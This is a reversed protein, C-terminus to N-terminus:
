GYVRCAAYKSFAGARRNPLQVAMCVCDPLFEDWKVELLTPADGARVLPLQPDLLDVGGLGTRLDDDLTVRVNGAPYVYAKRRYDVLTRPRLGQTTMKYYLERVLPRDSRGMWVLDGQLLREVEQASMRDSQKYCLGNRKSKKELRIFSTDTDYCRLRFKERRDVGDLKERLARNELNDFYLSRIRYEGQRGHSDPRLIAGLRQRLVLVDGLDIEHKWEHRPRM